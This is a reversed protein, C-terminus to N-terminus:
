WVAGAATRGNKGYFGGGSAGFSKAQWCALALAVVLDDHSGSRANMRVNGYQTLEYEYYQLERMLTEDRPISLQIHSLKMALHEVLDRKSQSTFGYGDVLVDAGTDWLKTRLQELLPDGISTQDTLAQSVANAKLFGVVREIQASWGMGNFRDMAIVKVGSESVGLAVIATFDSYRAWDIGAVVYEYEIGASPRELAANIDEWPFVSGVDDLFQAEYEVAFQRTSIEGRQREVYEASIHPNTWSPFTFSACDGSNGTKLERNGRVFTRYFHNKGFPTSVMVLRGNNDALMPSIVEQIVCDRVYAAEDVIVRDASHGRLNRGDEDATRAMVLSRGISMRPYPTRTIKALARTIGSSMMMREIGDFILRSQDSTPSVIMQVSGPCAIAFTAVDIAAAETKGWRRGCAAVKTKVDALLWKRQSPHPIWGWLAKALEIRKQNDIM